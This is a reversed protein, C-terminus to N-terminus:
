NSVTVTVEEDMDTVDGEATVWQVRYRYIRGRGVTTDRYEGRYQPGTLRFFAGDESKRLLIYGGQEKDTVRFRLQVGSATDYRATLGAPLITKVGAKKEEDFALRWAALTSVNGTSDVAQLAYRVPKGTPARRDTFTPVTAPLLTRTLREPLSDGTKRWVHFGKLDEDSTPKWSLIMGAPQRSLASLVPAEPPTKDPMRAAIASPLSENFSRDVATVRYFFRNGARAPQKDVFVQEQIPEAVLQTFERNDISRYIRFGRIDKQPIGAWRLTIKGTDVAITLGQPAVPPTVDPVLVSARSSNSRIGADNLAVVYYSYTTGETLRSDLFLTDKKGGTWVQEFPADKGSSRYVHYALVNRSASLAWKLEVGKSKKWSASIRRIPVPPTLDKPVVSVPVSRASENGLYDVAVVQYVYGQGNKLGVDRFWTKAEKDAYVENDEFARPASGASASRYVRYYFVAPDTPWELTASSTGGAAKAVAPPKLGNETSVPASLALDRERKGDLVALRYVYTQGPRVDTDEWFVGVHRAFANDHAAEGYLQFDTADPAEGAHLITCYRAYASDGPFPNRDSSLDKPAIAVSAMVPKPTVQVFALNGTQRYLVFGKGKIPAKSMWKLRISNGAPAAFLRYDQASAACAPLLLLILVGKILNTM